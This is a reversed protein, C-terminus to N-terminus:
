LPERERAGRPSSICMQLLDRLTGLRALSAVWSSCGQCQGEVDLCTEERLRPAMPLSHSLDVAPLSAIAPVSIVSCNRRPSDRLHYKSRQAGTTTRPPVQNGRFHERESKDIQELRLEEQFVLSESYALPSDLWTTYRSALCAALM